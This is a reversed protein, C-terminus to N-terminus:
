DGHTRPWGNVHGLEHCVLKAYSETEGLICPDPLIVLHPEGKKKPKYACGLTVMGKPAKGCFQDIKAPHVFATLAISEQQFRVPPLGSNHLTSNPALTALAAALLLGKGLM